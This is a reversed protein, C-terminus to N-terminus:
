KNKLVKFLSIGLYGFILGEIILVLNLGTGFVALMNGYKILDWIVRLVVYVLLPILATVVMLFMQSKDGSELLDEIVREPQYFLQYVNCGLKYSQRIAILWM